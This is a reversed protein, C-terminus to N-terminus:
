ANGQRRLLLAIIGTGIASLALFIELIRVWPLEYVGFREPEDPETMPVFVDGDDKLETTPMLILPDVEPTATFTPTPASTMDVGESAAEEDTPPITEEPIESTIARGEEDAMDAELIAAEVTGELESAPEAPAELGGVIEQSEAEMVPEEVIEEEEVMVQPIVEGEAMEVQYLKQSEGPAIVAPMGLMDGVMVFIFLISAVASALRMTPYLRARVAPKGVMEPTLTFNRPVRLKSLSKLAAHTGQMENLAEKLEPEGSLRVELRRRQRPPLQGDLYASLSELDRRPLSTKMM